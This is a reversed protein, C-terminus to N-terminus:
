NKWSWMAYSFCLAGFSFSPAIVQRLHFSILCAFDLSTWTVRFGETRRGRSVWFERTNIGNLAWWRVGLLEAEIGGLARLLCCKQKAEEM